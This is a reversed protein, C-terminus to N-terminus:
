DGSNSNIGEDLRDAVSNVYRVIDALELKPDCPKPATKAKESRKILREFIRQQREDFHKRAHHRLKSLHEDDGGTVCPDPEFDVFEGDRQNFFFSTSCELLMRGFVELLIASAVPGLTAGGTEIHAERMIYFFLPTGGAEEALERARNAANGKGPFAAEDFLEAFPIVRVTSYHAKLEDAVAEGSPLGLSRGRALNRFALSRNNPSTAGVIADPLTMIENPFLEDFSKANVPDVCPDVELQFRWDVALAEPLETFGLTGFEEDFLEINLQRANAPYRDRVTTHGFRFAAVSFEIPMPTGHPGSHTFVLPYAAPLGANPDSELAARRQAAAKEIEGIAFDFTERHCVRCLFDYLVIYQYHHRVTTEVAEFRAGNTNAAGLNSLLMANHFRIWLLQMAAVFINEDNRPDGILAAGTGSRALDWPRGADTGTALFGPRNQDFLLPNAGPGLGYVCDLDISFTRQNKIDTPEQGLRNLDSQTDLTVDHDIFQAFFTYAAPLASDPSDQSEDHMLQGPGAILSMLEDRFEFRPLAPNFLTGFAGFGAHQCGLAKSVGHHSVPCGSAM